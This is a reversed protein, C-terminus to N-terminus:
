DHDEAAEEGGLLRDIIILLQEFRTMKDFIVMPEVAEARNKLEADLHNATFFVVPMRYRKRIVRMTEVGDMEGPLIVDMLLLDPQCREVFALAEGSGTAIECVEYGHECLRRKLMMGVLIEDEVILIRPAM